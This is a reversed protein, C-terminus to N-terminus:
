SAFTKPLDKRDTEKFDVIYFEEDFGQDDMTELETVIEFDEPSVRTPMAKYGGNRSIFRESITVKRIGTVELSYFLEPPDPNKHFNEAWVYYDLLLTGRGRIREGIEYKNVLQNEIYFRFGGTDIIALAPKASKSNITPLKMGMFKKRQDGGYNRIVEGCYDYEANGIHKFALEQNHKAPLVSAPEVQFSLNVLMGKHFPPYNGDGIHWSEFVATLELM